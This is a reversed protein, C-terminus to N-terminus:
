RAARERTPEHVEPFAGGHPEAAGRPDPHIIIDAAPFADLVRREAAVMVRHAEVLSLAPDLDAHMQIHVYPGSARTRLQHVDGVRPDDTMLEVIRRRAEDSLEHDMLEFAARRFVGVAGWVLWGAVLLGALADPEGRGLLASAGIGAFAILNSALDALYHMRDGEVAVSQARRLTWSQAFVLAATLLISLAMVALGWGEYALRHPAILRPIAQQAVLAGSAFVLGAQTLSAFAEAKGHGYRHERDPPSAAYRVAFFTVAAALVDLGSDALSALMAVSGSLIWALAKIATLASAVGLSLRTIRRTLASARDLSLGSPHAATM